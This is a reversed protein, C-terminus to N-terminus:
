LQEPLCKCFKWISDTFGAEKEVSACFGCVATFYSHNKCSNFNGYRIKFKYVLRGAHLFRTEPLPYTCPKLAM